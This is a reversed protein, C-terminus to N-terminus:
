RLKAPDVGGMKCVQKEDGTHYFFGRDGKKMKRM